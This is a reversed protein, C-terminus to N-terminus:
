MRKRLPRMREETFASVDNSAFVITGTSPLLRLIARGLTSKGSGSEGVVGVTQGRRITLSIDNVAKLCSTVRGLWNVRL